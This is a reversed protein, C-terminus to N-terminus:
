GEPFEEFLYELGSSEDVHALALSLSQKGCHVDGLPLGVYIRLIRMWNQM